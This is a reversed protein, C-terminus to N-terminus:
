SIRAFCVFSLVDNEMCCSFTILATRQEPLNLLRSLYFVYSFCKCNSLMKEVNQVEDTLSVNCLIYVALVDGLSPILHVQFRTTCIYDKSGWPVGAM